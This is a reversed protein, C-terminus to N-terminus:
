YLEVWLERFSVGMSGIGNTNAHLVVYRVSETAVTSIGSKSHEDFTDVIDVKHYTYYKGLLCIRTHSQLVFDLVIAIYDM